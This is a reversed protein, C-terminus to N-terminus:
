ILWDKNKKATSFSKTKAAFSKLFFKLFHCKKGGQSASKRQM